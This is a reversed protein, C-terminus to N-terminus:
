ERFPSCLAREPGDFGGALSLRVRGHRLRVELYGEPFGLSGRLLLFCASALTCIRHARQMLVQLRGSPLYGCSLTMSTVDPRCNMWQQLTMGSQLAGQHGLALCAGFFM